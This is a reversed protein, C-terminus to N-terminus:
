RGNKYDIVKQIAHVKAMLEERSERKIQATEQPQNNLINAQTTVISAIQTAEQASLSGEELGSWIAEIRAIPTTDKNVQVRPKGYGFRNRMITSWYPFNFNPNTLPETEWKRGSINIAIDYAEKFEKHAKLWDYFTQKSILAEACFAMIGEGAKFTEFLLGIHKENNYKTPKGEKCRKIFNDKAKM